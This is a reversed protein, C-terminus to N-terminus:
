VMVFIPTSIACIYEILNRSGMLSSSFFLLILFIFYFWLSWGTKSTSTSLHVRSGFRRTLIVRVWLIYLWPKQFFLFNLIITEVTTWSTKGLLVMLNIPGSLRYFNFIASELTIWCTINWIRNIRFYIIGHKFVVFVM